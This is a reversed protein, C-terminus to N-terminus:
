RLRQVRGLRDLRPQPGGLQQAIVALVVIRHAREVHGTRGLRGAALGAGAGGIVAVRGGALLRPARADLQHDGAAGDVLLAAVGGHRRAAEVVRQGLVGVVCPQQHRAGADFLAAAVPPARDAEGFPQELALGAADLRQVEQPEDGDSWPKSAGRASLRSCAAAVSFGPEPAIM